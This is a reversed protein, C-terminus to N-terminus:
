AGSTQRGAFREPRLVKADSVSVIGPYREFLDSIQALVTDAASEDTIAIMVLHDEAGTLQDERWIGSSGAGGITKLATWGTVGATEFIRAFVPLHVRAIALEIRKCNTMEIAM